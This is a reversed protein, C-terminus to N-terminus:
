GGRACVKKVTSYYLTVFFLPSTSDNGALQKWCILGSIRPQNQPFLGTPNHIRRNGTERCYVHLEKAERAGGRWVCLYVYM